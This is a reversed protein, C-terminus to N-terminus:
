SFGLITGLHQILALQHNIDNTRLCSITLISDGFTCSFAAAQGDVAAALPRSINAMSWRSADQVMFPTEVLYEYSMEQPLGVMFVFAPM